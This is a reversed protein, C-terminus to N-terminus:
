IELAYIIDMENTENKYQEEGLKLFLAISTKLSKLQNVISKFETKIVMKEVMKIYTATIRSVRIFPKRVKALILLKSKAMVM